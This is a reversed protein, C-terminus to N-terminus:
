QSEGSLDATLEAVRRLAEGALPVKLMVALAGEFEQVSAMGVLVTGMAPHSIAFRIAAESLSAALGETVFPMLRSARQLDTDHSLASGIPEPAPAIASDPHHRISLPPTDLRTSAQRFERLLRYAM